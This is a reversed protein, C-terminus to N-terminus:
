QNGGLVQQRFNIHAKDRYGYQDIQISKMDKEVRSRVWNNIAGYDNAYKKGSSIKYNLLFEIIAKTKQEGDREILNAYETETLKVNIGEHQAYVQKTKTAPVISQETKKTHLSMVKYGDFMDVKIAKDKLILNTLHRRFTTRSVKFPMSALLESKKSYKVEKLKQLALIIQLSVPQDIYKYLNM